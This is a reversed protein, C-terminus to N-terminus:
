RNATRPSSLRSSPTSRGSARRWWSQGSEIRGADTRSFRPGRNQLSIGFTPSWARGLWLGHLQEPHLQGDHRERRGRDPLHHRGKLSAGGFDQARKMDILKARSALYAPRADASPKVEMTAPESVYRYVDAFALKMAEIQLHQAAQAM